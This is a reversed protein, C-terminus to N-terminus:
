ASSPMRSVSSHSSNLRTSKRDLTKFNNKAAMKAAIIGSVGGGIVLVDYHVYKHDYIDPDPETPSKGLGASLRILPEYVKKWFSKPWMFTKYYFGAPILPSIFNNIGGIDFKVNPWCNQSSAELGEYLELETARVNPETLDKKSGIQCIANPEEAGCSVIGRPRHYKFSRGVLHIGNALLASALTDGEYGFYTKGDYKFSVRKTEDIYETKHIRYNPM